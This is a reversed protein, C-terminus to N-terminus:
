LIFYLYAAPGPAKPPQPSSHLHFICFVRPIYVAEPSSARRPREPPHRRPRASSTSRRRPQQPAPPREHPTQDAGPTTGNLKGPPYEDPTIRAPIGEPRTQQRHRHRSWSRLVAPPAGARTSTSDRSFEPFSGRAQAPSAFSLGAPSHGGAPQRKPKKM